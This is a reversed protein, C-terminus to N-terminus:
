QRLSCAVRSLLVVHVPPNHLVVTALEDFIYGVTSVEGHIFVPISENHRQLLSFFFFRVPLHLRGRASM